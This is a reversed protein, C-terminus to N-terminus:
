ITGDPKRYPVTTVRSLFNGITPTAALRAAQAGLSIPSGTQVLNMAMQNTMLAASMSPQNQSESTTAPACATVGAEWNQSYFHAMGKTGAKVKNGAELWYDFVRIKDWGSPKLLNDQRIWITFLASGGQLMEEYYVGYVENIERQKFYGFRASSITIAGNYLPAFGPRDRHLGWSNPKPGWSDNTNPSISPSEDDIRVLGVLDSLFSGYSSGLPNVASQGNVLLFNPFDQRCKDGLIFPTTGALFSDFCTMIAGPPMVEGSNNIFPVLVPTSAISPAENLWNGYRDISVQFYPQTVDFAVAVPYINVIQVQGGAFVLEPDGSSNTVVRYVDTITTGLIDGARAPIGATPVKCVYTGATDGGPKPYRLKAGPRPEHLDAIRSLANGKREGFVHVPAKTM